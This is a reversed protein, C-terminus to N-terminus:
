TIHDDELDSDRTVLIKHHHHTRPIYISSIAEFFERDIREQLEAQQAGITMNQHITNRFPRTLGPNNVRSTNLPRTPTAHNSSEYGAHVRGSGDLRTM